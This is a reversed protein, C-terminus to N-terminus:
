LKEIQLIKYEAKTLYDEDPLVRPLHGAVAVFTEKKFDGLNLVIIKKGKWFAEQQQTVPTFDRKVIAYHIDEALVILDAWNVTEQTLYTTKHKGTFYRNVGASKYTHAPYNMLFYKHLAPSRDKNSTCVFLINM